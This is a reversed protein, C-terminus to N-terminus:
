GRHYIPRTEVERGPHKIGAFTGGDAGSGTQVHRYLSFDRAGGPNSSWVMALRYM